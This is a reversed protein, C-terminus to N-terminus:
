RAVHRFLSSTLSVQWTQRLKSGGMLTESCNEFQTLEADRRPWFVRVDARLLRPDVASEPVSQVRYKICYRPDIASTPYNEEDLMDRNVLRPERADKWENSSSIRAPRNAQNTWSVADKRLMEIWREALGTAQTFEQAVINGSIAVVQLSYLAVIGVTMVFLAIMVELVTFGRSSRRTRM